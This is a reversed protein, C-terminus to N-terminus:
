FQNACERESVVHKLALEVEKTTSHDPGHVQKSIALLKTLLDMAEDGRNATHLDIAYNRGAYITLEEEVGHTAVRLEYLEQSTKLVEEKNGAEYKSKAHAINNMAAAIGEVCRIAEYVELSKQFHAVARRASEETGEDLAIRGLSGYASAEFQYYRVSPLPIIETKRREILSLLVNTTVVAERKQLPQLKGFTSMLARLKLNLSEVQRQTDSPYQRRVFSVFKTAVEIALENQYGQLCNPCIAWPKVFENM